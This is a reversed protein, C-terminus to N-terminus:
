DVVGSEEKKGEKIKIFRRVAIIHKCPIGWRQCRMRFDSCECFPIEPNVYYKGVFFRGDKMVVDLDGANELRKRYEEQLVAKNALENAKKNNERPIWQFSIDKFNELLGCLKKFYPQINYSNVAFSGNIQNVVLQSDSFVLIKEKKYGFVEKLARICASYEAENNTGWGMRESIETIKGNNNIVIGVGMKGPNPVAAGDVYIKIM